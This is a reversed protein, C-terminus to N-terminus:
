ATQRVSVGIQHQNPAPVVPCVSMIRRAASNYESYPLHTDVDIIQPPSAEELERLYKTMRETWRKPTGVRAPRERGDPLDDAVRPNNPKFESTWILRLGDRVYDPVVADSTDLTRYDPDTGNLCRTTISRCVTVRGDATTLLPTVGNDLCSSQTAVNSWDAVFAQPAIGLLVSGDYAAGPDDGETAARLAAMAAAVESPHSESNLLWLNQFRPDNLTATSLTTAASQTGYTAFIVHEM